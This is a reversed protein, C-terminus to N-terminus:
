SFKGIRVNNKTPVKINYIITKVPPRKSIRNILLNLKLPVCVWFFIVILSTLLCRLTAASVDDSLSWWVIQIRIGRAAEEHQRLDAKQFSLMQTHTWVLSQIFDKICDNTQVNFIHDQLIPVFSYRFIHEAKFYLITLNGLFYQLWFYFVPPLYHLLCFELWLDIFLTNTQMHTTQRSVWQSHTWSLTLRRCDEYM